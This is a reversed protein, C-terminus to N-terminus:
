MSTALRWLHRGIELALGIQRRTMPSSLRPECESDMSLLGVDQYSPISEETVRNLSEAWVSMYWFLVGQEVSIIVLSMFLRLSVQDCELWGKVLLVYRGTEVSL